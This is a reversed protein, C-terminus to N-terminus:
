ILFTNKFVSQFNFFLPNSNFAHSQPWFDCILKCVSWCLLHRRVKNQSILIKSIPFDGLVVFLRSLLVRSQTPLEEHMVAFILGLTELRWAHFNSKAIAFNHSKTINLKPLIYRFEISSLRAATEGMYSGLM